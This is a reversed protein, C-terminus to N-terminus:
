ARDDPTRPLPDIGTRAPVERSILPSKPSVLPQTGGRACVDRGSSRAVVTAGTSRATVHRDQSTLRANPAVLPQPPTADLTAITDGNAATIPVDDHTPLTRETPM